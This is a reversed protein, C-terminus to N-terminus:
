KLLLDSHGYMMIDHNIQENKDYANMIKRKEENTLEDWVSSSYLESNEELHADLDDGQEEYFESFENAENLDIVEKKKKKFKEMLKDFQNEWRDRDRTM